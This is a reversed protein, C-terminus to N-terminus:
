ANIVDSQLYNADFTFAFAFATFMMEFPMVLGIGRYAHMEEKISGNAHCQWLQSKIYEGM